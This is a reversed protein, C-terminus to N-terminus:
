TWESSYCPCKLLNFFPGLCVLRILIILTGWNKPKKFTLLKVFLWLTKYTRWNKEFSWFYM